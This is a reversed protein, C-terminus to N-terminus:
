LWYNRLVNIKTHLNNTDKLTFQTYNNFKLPAYQESQDILKVPIPKDWNQYKLEGDTEKEILSAEIFCGCYNSFILEVKENKLTSIISEGFDISKELEDKLEFANNTKDFSNPKDCDANEEPYECSGDDDTADPSFNCATEDMCGAIPDLEEKRDAKDDKPESNNTLSNQMLFLLLGILLFGIILNFDIIKNEM